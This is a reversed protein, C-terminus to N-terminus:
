QTVLTAFHSQILTLNDCVFYNLAVLGNIICLKFMVSAINSM